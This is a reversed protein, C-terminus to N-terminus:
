KELLEPNDHINGVIVGDEHLHIFVSDKIACYMSWRHQMKNWGVILKKSAYDIIDGEFINTGNKDTLGTYQGLTEPILEFSNSYVQGMGNTLIHYTTKGMHINVVLSGYIWKSSDVRKGRFLIERKM